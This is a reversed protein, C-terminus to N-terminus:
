WAEAGKTRPSEPNKWKSVPYKSLNIANLKWSFGSVVYLTVTICDFKFWSWHFIWPKQPFFSHCQKWHIKPLLWPGTRDTQWHDCVKSVCKTWFGSGTKMPNFPPGKLNPKWPWVKKYTHMDGSTDSPGTRAWSNDKSCHGSCEAM